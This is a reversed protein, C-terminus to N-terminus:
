EERTSPPGYCLKYGHLNNQMASGYTTGNIDGYRLIVPGNDYPLGTTDSAIEACVRAPVIDNSSALFLFKVRKESVDKRWTNENAWRFSSVNNVISQNVIGSNGLAVQTATINEPASKSNWVFIGSIIAALIVFIGTIWAAKVTVSKRDM